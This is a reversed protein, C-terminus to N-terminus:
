NQDPTDGEPEPVEKAIYRNDIPEIEGVVDLCGSGLLYSICVQALRAHTAGMDLVPYTQNQIPGLSLEKKAKLDSSLDTNHTKNIMEAIELLRLPRSAHTVWSLILIQLYWLVESQQIHQQLLDTYLVNLDAPLNDTVQQIDVGDKLFADM